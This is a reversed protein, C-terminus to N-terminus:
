CDSCVDYDFGLLLKQCIPEGTIRAGASKLYAKVRHADQTDFDPTSPSCSATSMPSQSAGKPSDIQKRPRRAQGSGNIFSGYCAQMYAKAVAASAERDSVVQWARGSDYFM